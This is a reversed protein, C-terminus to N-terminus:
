DWIKYTRTFVYDVHTWWTIIYNSSIFPSLRYILSTWCLNVALSPIFRFTYSSHLCSLKIILCYSTDDDPICSTYVTSLDSWTCLGWSSWWDEPGLSICSTYVTSLDSWTCLGWSSCWDEPGLSICSTYVTSLDSWTCLGWLSCWDEPGLSICSQKSWYIKWNKNLYIYIYIYIYIFYVISNSESWYNWIKM